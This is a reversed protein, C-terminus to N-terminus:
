RRVNGQQVDKVYRDIAELFAFAKRSLSRSLGETRVLDQHHAYALM